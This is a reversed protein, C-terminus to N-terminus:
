ITSQVRTVASRGPPPSLIDPSQPHRRPVNGAAGGQVVLRWPQSILQLRHLPSTTTVFLGKQQVTGGSSSRCPPHGPHHRATACGGKCLSTWRSVCARRVLVLFRKGWCSLFQGTPPMFLPSGHGPLDGPHIKKPFIVTFLPPLSPTFHHIGPIHGPLSGLGHGGSGARRPRWLQTEKRTQRSDGCWLCYSWVRDGHRGPSTTYRWWAVASPDGPIAPHRDQQGLFSSTGDLGM